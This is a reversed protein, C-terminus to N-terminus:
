ITAKCTDKNLELRKMMEHMMSNHEYERNDGKGRYTMVEYNNLQKRCKEERDNKGEEFKWKAKFSMVFQIANGKQIAKEIAGLCTDNDLVGGTLVVLVISQDDMANVIHQGLTELSEKMEKAISDGTNSHVLFFTGPKVVDPSLSPHCKDALEKPIEIDGRRLIEYMMMDFEFGRRRHPIMNTHEKTIFDRIDVADDPGGGLKGSFGQGEELGKYTIELTDDIDGTKSKDEKWRQFDWADFRVDEEVVVVIPKKEKLACAFELLCYWRSLTRTTLLLVFVDSDQVGKIMAATDIKEQTMDRWSSIGILELGNSLTGV